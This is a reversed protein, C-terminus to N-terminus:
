MGTSLVQRSRLGGVLVELVRLLGVWLAREGLGARAHPVIAVIVLVAVQDQVHVVREHVVVGAGADAAGVGDLLHQTLHAKCLPHLPPQTLCLLQPELHPPWCFLVLTASAGPIARGAQRGCWLLATHLREGVPLKRRGREM